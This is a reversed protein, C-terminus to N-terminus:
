SKNAIRRLVEDRFNRDGVVEIFGQVFGVCYAIPEVFIRTFLKVSGYLIKCLYEEAKTM